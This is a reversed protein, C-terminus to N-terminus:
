GGDEELDIVLSRDPAVVASARPPVIVTSEREEVIAPGDITAGPDLGYRDYVRTARYAGDFYADREGKLAQEGAPMGALEELSVGPAPGSATVRWNIVEVPVAPGRRGHRREYAAEFAERLGEPTRSGAEDLVVPIEFGQGRYRMDVGREYGIDGAAVGSDGLVKAGEGEMEAFLEGAREMIEDGVVVPWSRVFDFAMPATLVGVSSMVGAAAPVIVRSSGLARAVGAAHVPGAGGFAFFALGAPDHGREVVHVRAASAMDENVLTHIGHAARALDLGLPEAVVREIAARARDAELQVDGGLFYGPDLYGLVLDADTVTPEEGGQGYCAPGPSAGASRPGVALLGLPTIRAISGGGVGIEIMDLVQTKVPLGSGKKLRNVRDVEFDNTVLPRGDEIMCLKATTGGMDFSLLDAQGATAGFKAAALAGAAPGSELMRIPHRAATEPTAVGGHSLMVLLGRPIGLTELRGGLDDLYSSVLQQVYVSATTTTAREYERIEPSVEASIAVDLGAATRRIVDAAARENDANAFSNIFCVAVADVGGADLEGALQAVYGEDLALEISGDALTREPVDFRLHRPVLPAPLDVMVDYIDSRRERAMEVVDRFGATMLLATKAGRREILANTVLTTAHVVQGVSRADLELTALTERIVREVGEAPEATTLTKGIGAVRGDVLVCLDTFTGGIDVGLRTNQRM